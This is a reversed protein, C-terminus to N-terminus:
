GGQAYAWDYSISELDIDLNGIVNAKLIHGESSTNVGATLAHIPLSQEDRLARGRTPFTVRIWVREATPEALDDRGEDSGILALTADPVFVYQDEVGELRLQNGVISRDGLRARLEMRAEEVSESSGSELQVRELRERMWLTRDIVTDWDGAQLAEAYRLGASDPPALNEPGAGQTTGGAAHAAPPPSEPPQLYPKLMLGAVAGLLAGVGMAKFFRGM